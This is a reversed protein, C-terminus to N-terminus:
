SSKLWEPLLVAEAKDLSEGVVSPVSQVRQGKNVFVRISRQEKVRSGFPLDQRIIHGTQFMRM